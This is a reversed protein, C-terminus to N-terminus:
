YSEPKWFDNFNELEAIMKKEVDKLETSTSIGIETLADTIKDTKKLILRGTRSHFDRKLYSFNKTYTNNRGIIIINEKVNSLVIEWNIEDGISYNSSTPPNGILKRKHAKNLIDDTTYLLTNLKTCERVMDTFFAYVPDKEPAELIMDM